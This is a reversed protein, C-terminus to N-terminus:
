RRQLKKQADRILSGLRKFEERSMSEYGELSRGVHLYLQWQSKSYYAGAKFGGRSVFNVETYHDPTTSFIGADLISLSEALSEVEDADLVAILSGGYRSTSDKEFRVGSLGAGSGLDEARMLQVSVGAVSGLQEATIKILVGSRSAFREIQSGSGAAPSTSAQAPLFSPSFVLALV